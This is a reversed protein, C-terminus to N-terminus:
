GERAPGGTKGATDDLLKFSSRDLGAQLHYNGTKIVEASVKDMYVIRRVHGEEILTDVVKWEATKLAPNFRQLMNLVKPTDVCWTNRSKWAM